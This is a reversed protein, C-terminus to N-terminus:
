ESDSDSDKDKKQKKDFANELYQEVRERLKEVNKKNGHNM